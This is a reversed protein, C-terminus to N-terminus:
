ALLMNKLVQINSTVDSNHRYPEPAMGAAKRPDVQGRPNALADEVFKTFDHIFTSRGAERPFNHFNTEYVRHPNRM